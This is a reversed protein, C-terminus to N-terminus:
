KAVVKDLYSAIDGVTVMKALEEDPIQIDYESELNMVLSVVDLSDALLDEKIRSEAKILSADMAMQEAFAAIIKELM